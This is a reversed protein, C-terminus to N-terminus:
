FIEVARPSSRTGRENSHAHVIGFGILSHVFPSLFPVVFNCVFIVCWSIVCVCLLIFSSLFLM